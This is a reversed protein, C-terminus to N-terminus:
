MYSLASSSFILTFYVINILGIQTQHKLNTFSLCLGIFSFVFFGIFIGAIINILESLRIGRDFLFFSLLTLVTLLIIYIFFRSIILGVFYLFQSLPLTKLYKLWGLAYYKKLLSGIAFFGTSVITIGIVGTYISFTYNENNDFISGFVIFLFSPFAITFFIAQKIRFFLILHLKVVHIVKRM